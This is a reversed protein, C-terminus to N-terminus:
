RALFEAFAALRKPGMYGQRGYMAQKELWAVTDADRLEAVVVRGRTLTMGGHPHRYGIYPGFATPGPPYEDAPEEQPRAGKHHRAAWYELAALEAAPLLVGTPEGDATLRVREGTEEVQAILRGFEPAGEILEVDM